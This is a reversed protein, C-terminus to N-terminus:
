SKPSVINASRAKWYIWLYWGKSNGDADRPDFDKLWRTVRTGGGLGFLAACLNPFVSADPAAAMELLGQKFQRSRYSDHRILFEYSAAALEWDWPAWQRAALTRKYANTANRFYGEDSVYERYARAFRRDSTLVDAAKLYHLGHLCFLAELPSKRSCDGYFTTSGDANTIRMDHNLLRGVVRRVLAAASKRREDGACLLMYDALGTLYFTMEDTSVDGLWRYPGSQHWHHALWDGEGPGPSDMRKYQRATLGPVGTVKELMELSAALLDARQRTSEDRTLSFKHSLASLLCGTHLGCNEESYRMKGTPDVQSGILLGDQLNNAFIHEECYQAKDALTSDTGPNGKPRSPDDAPQSSACRFWVAGALSLFAILPIRRLPM